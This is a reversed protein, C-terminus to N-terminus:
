ASATMWRGSVIPTMEAVKNAIKPLLFAFSVTTGSASSQISLDGEFQRARERMGGIGVGSGQSQLESLKEAPIGRGKDEVELLVKEGDRDIRIMAIKSGSHRHVNTLSEQVVRFIVLEMEPSLRGFDESINLSIELGSRQSLGQIYWRLAEVLGTEELLPPHLLYSMTRIERSLQQVLQLGDDATSVIQPFSQIAHQRIAALSMGLAALIQGSSDHLERAIRRREEDQTQMLRHSVLRFRELQKLSELKQLAIEEARIRLQSELLEALAQTRAMLARNEREYDAPSPARPYLEETLLISEVSVIAPPIFLGSVSNQFPVSAPFEECESSSLRVRPLDPVIQCNKASKMKCVEDEETSSCAM